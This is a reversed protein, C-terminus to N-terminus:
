NQQQTELEVRALHAAQKVIDVIAQQGRPGYPKREHIRIYKVADLGRAAAPSLFARRHRANRTRAPRPTKASAATTMTAAPAAGATTTTPVIGSSARTDERSARAITAPRKSASPKPPKKTPKPKAM